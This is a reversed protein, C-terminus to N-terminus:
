LIYIFEKRVLMKLVGIFAERTSNDSCSMSLEKVTLPLSKEIWRVFSFMEENVIMLNNYSSKSSVSYSERGEERWRLKGIFCIIDEDNIV